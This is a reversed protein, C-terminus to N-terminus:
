NKSNAVCALAAPLLDQTEDTRILWHTDPHRRFWTLQRKAYRRSGQRIAAVAEDLTCDGRLAAVIEKYGIAQMATATPPVGADLLSQVEAVLGQALMQGVRRDIRAYLLSRPEFSLCLRLAEYKPPLQRTAADHQSLPIGTEGYVELARLGRKRDAAHLRAATEPDVQRLRELLAATGVADAERELAERVGTAPLPAFARGLILSDLYLGTGGCVIVRKGRSLVDQVARDALAVYRSVSFSEDPEAVDLLHHPVGQMEAPTPKATGIEMRRYVQMSDCSVVEADLAKALQVALATKGSATPGCICIISNM